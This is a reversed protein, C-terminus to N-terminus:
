LPQSARLWLNKHDTLVEAVFVVELLESSSVIGGALRVLIQKFKENM